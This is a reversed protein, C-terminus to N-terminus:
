LSNKLNEVLSLIKSDKLERKEGQVISLRYRGVSSKVLGLESFVNIALMLESLDVEKVRNRISKTYAYVNAPSVDANKRISLRSM